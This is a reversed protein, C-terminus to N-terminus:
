TAPVPPSDLIRSRHKGAWAVGLILLAGVKLSAAAQTGALYILFCVWVFCIVAVYNGFESNHKGTAELSLECWGVALGWLFGAVIAGFYGFNIYGEGLITLRLGGTEGTQDLGILKTSIARLSHTSSWDSAISPFPILAQAFTVGQLTEGDLLSLTWGLDRVEPLATSSVTLIARPGSDIGFVGLLFICQSLIYLFTASLVVKRTFRYVDKREIGLLILFTLTVALLNARRLPLLLALYGVVALLIGFPRPRKVMRILVFPLSVTLLDMARNVIWEDTASGNLIDGTIYRMFPWKSPDSLFDVFGLKWYAFFMLVSGFLAMLYFIKEAINRNILIPIGPIQSSSRGNLTWVYGLGGAFLGISNILMAKAFFVQANSRISTHETTLGALLYGFVIHAVALVFFLGCLTQITGRRRSDARRVMLITGALLCVSTAALIAPTDPALIGILTALLMALISLTVTM